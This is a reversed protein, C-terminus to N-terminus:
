EINERLLKVNEAGLVAGHAKNSEQHVSGFGIRTNIKVFSPKDKSQKALMIAQTIQEVDNGDEVELTNFGLSKMYNLLNQDMVGTISSDLTM